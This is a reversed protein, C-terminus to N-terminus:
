RRKMCICLCILVLLVACCVSLLIIHTHRNKSLAVSISTDLGQHIAMCTVDEEDLIKSQLLITTVVLTTGDSQQYISTESPAVTRNHGEVNWVLEAPPRSVTSCNAQIVGDEVTIYSVEPTPLVYVELCARVSKLGQPYTHYECTYCGEDEMQIPDITLQSNGLTQSLQVREEFPSEVILRGHKAYSAVTTTDGQEATKKWLVQRVRNILPYTCSLMVRKGRVATKNGVSEVSATLFLCTKGRHQGSPHVEFVCTYCGDDGPKTRQITIASTHMHQDVLEVGARRTLSGPKEPQYHLITKHHVDLWHVNKLVEGSKITVNCSLTVPLNMAVQLQAPATVNAQLCSFQLLIMWLYM